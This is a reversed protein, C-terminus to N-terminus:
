EDELLHEMVIDKKPYNTTFVYLFLILIPYVILSHMFLNMFLYSVFISINNKNINKSLIKSLMLIYFISLLLGFRLVINLFFNHPQVLRYGMFETSDANEELDLVELIDKDYGSYILQYNENVEKIAYLNSRVRMANSGDNFSKKYEKVSSSPLLSWFASLLIIGLISLLFTLYIVIDKNSNIFNIVKKNKYNAYKAFFEVLLFIIVSLYILRSKFLFFLIISLAIGLYHKNKFSYIFFLFMIVASYNKDGINLFSYDVLNPNIAFHYIMDFM